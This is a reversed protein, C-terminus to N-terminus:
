KTQTYNKEAQEWNIVNWFNKVYDARKNQYKLYYAHEWVDIAVIPVLGLSIPTDQNATSIIELKGDKNAVLWAWGSGFRSMAAKEFQEKFQDFSGFTADIAKALEGVPKKTSNPTMINWYFNHNYVGGGNNIVSQKIDEPLANLDSLLGDLGLEYLDPYKDITDNLNNVYTQHHKDHHITVTEKDIYPELADYAYPLPMLQFKGDSSSATPIVEDFSMVSVLTFFLGLSVIFIISKKM